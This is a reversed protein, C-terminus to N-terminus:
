ELAYITGWLSGASPELVDRRPHLHIAAESNITLLSNEHILTLTLMEYDMSQKHIIHNVNSGVVLELVLEHLLM